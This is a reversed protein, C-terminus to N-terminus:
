RMSQQQLSFVLSGNKTVSFEEHLSEQNSFVKIINEIYNKDRYNELVNRQTRTLNISEMDKTFATVRGRDIYVFCIKQGKKLPMNCRRINNAASGTTDVQDM